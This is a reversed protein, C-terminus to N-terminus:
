EGFKRKYKEINEVLLDAFSMSDLAQGSPIEIDLIECLTSFLDNQGILNDETKGASIVHDLRIIFPVRHEGEYASGKHDSNVVRIIGM